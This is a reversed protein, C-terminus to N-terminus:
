ELVWVGSARPPLLVSIAGAVAMPDDVPVSTWLPRLATAEILFPGAEVPRDTLNHLVLLRQGGQRRLLALVADGHPMGTLVETTGRRLPSSSQRLRILQRYLSLLSTPDARQSAISAWALPRRKDEDDSTPGNRQGIEDGYYIFPTGPLTLLLAAAQRLGAGDDGLQSALRVQDHNDVFTVDIAGAPYRQNIQQLADVLPRAQRDRVGDVIAAALSFDFTAGLEPAAATGYYPAIAAADAWIEGILLVDPRRAALRGALESLHRHTDSADAQGSGPGTEVLHRVADLRFGDVGLDLWNLMVDVIADRVQRNGWNLDPMGGWFLGYYYSDGARHWTAAGRNWPQGWDPDDSRWLYWRRHASTSATAADVFWPHRDSTHNLPLDLLVRMHRRHALDVLERLTERTGYESNVADFDTVDYGHYSPSPFTPMLWLLDVGLDDDTAPNGDNLYDLKDIVGRLDGSGNGDSDFFSRVFIEYGIADHAWDCARAPLSAPVLVPVPKAANPAVATPSHGTSCAAALAGVLPLVPLLAVASRTRQGSVRHGLESAGAM